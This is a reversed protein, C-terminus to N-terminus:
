RDIKRAKYVSAPMCQEQDAGIAYKTLQHRGRGGKDRVRDLMLAPMVECSRRTPVFTGQDSRSDLSWPM